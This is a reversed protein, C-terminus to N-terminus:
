GSSSCSEIRRATSADLIVATSHPLAKLFLPTCGKSSATM